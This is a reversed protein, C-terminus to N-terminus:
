KEEPGGRSDSRTTGGWAMNIGSDSSPAVYTCLDSKPHLLCLLCRGRQGCDDKTKQISKM